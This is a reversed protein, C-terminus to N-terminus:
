DHPQMDALLSRVKDMFQIRETPHSKRASIGRHGRGSGVNSRCHGASRGDARPDCPWAEVRYEPKCRSHAVDLGFFHRQLLDARPVDRRDLDPYGAEVRPAADEHSRHVPPPMGRSASICAPACPHVARRLSLSGCHPCFRDDGWIANVLFLRAHRETPMKKWVDRVSKLETIM